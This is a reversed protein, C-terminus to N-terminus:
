NNYYNRVKAQFDSGQYEKVAYMTVITLVVAVCLGTTAGVFFKTMASAPVKSLVMAGSATQVTTSAIAGEAVATGAVITTAGAGVKIAAAIATGIVVAEAAKDISKDVSKIIKKFFNM